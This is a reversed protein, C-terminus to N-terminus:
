VTTTCSFIRCIRILVLDAKTRQISNDYTPSAYYFICPLDNKDRAKDNGIKGSKRGLATFDDNTM